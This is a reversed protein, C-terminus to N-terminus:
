SLGEVRLRASRMWAETQEQTVASLTPLGM